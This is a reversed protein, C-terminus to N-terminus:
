VLNQKVQSSAHPNYVDVDLGFRLENLIDTGKVKIDPCNEKFAIGPNISEFKCTNRQEHKVVKSSIFKTM